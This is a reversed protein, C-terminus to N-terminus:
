AQLGSAESTYRRLLAITEDLAARMATLVDPEPPTGQRAAHEVEGSLRALRLAGLIAASGKMLHAATRLADLDRREAADALQDLRSPGDRVFLAVLSRLAGGTGDLEHLQVLAAEDLELDSSGKGSPEVPVGAGAALLHDLTRQLQHRDIPKTVHADMGAALAREADGPMASATVAVIPIRRGHDQRRRIESAAAYGDM